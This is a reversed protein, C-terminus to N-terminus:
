SFIRIETIWFRGGRMTLGFYVRREHPESTGDEITDWALELFAQNPEGGVDVARVVRVNGSVHGRRLDAVAAVVRSPTLAIHERGEVEFLSGAPDLLAELDRLSSNAWAAAVASATNELTQAMVDATALALTTAVVALLIVPRARRARGGLRSV